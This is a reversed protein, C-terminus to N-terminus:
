ETWAELLLRAFDASTIAIVKRNTKGIALSMEDSDLDHILRIHHFSTKDLVRKTTNVGADKALFVLPTREKQVLDVVFEEGTVIKQARMALGLTKLLRNKNM